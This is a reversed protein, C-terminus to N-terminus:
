LLGEEEMMKKTLIQGAYQNILNVSEPNTLYKVLSEDYPWGMVPHVEMREPNVIWVMIAHDNLPYYWEDKEILFQLVDAESVPPLALVYNKKNGLFCKAAALDRCGELAYEVREKVSIVIQADKKEAYIDPTTFGIIKDPIITYGAIKLFKTLAEKVEDASFLGQDYISEGQKM